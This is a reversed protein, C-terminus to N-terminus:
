EAGGEYADPRGLRSMVLDRVTAQIELMDRSADVVEWRDPEERAMTLYGGRVRRHYAIEKQEMRNWADGDGDAKRQLGIEVPLDFYLTLTPVLGGTAFQTIARLESLDRGYGYGQYALSSDAFRDCLVVGGRSLHSNIVEGVLQARSASFLLFETTPLMGTNVTDLLITRVKDGIPTSGPERITLVDYGLGRLHAALLRLQTTKGCGEPGEFTIFVGLAREM